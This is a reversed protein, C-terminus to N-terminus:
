SRIDQNPGPNTQGPLIRGEKIDKKVKTMSNKLARRIYEIVAYTTKIHKPNINKFMSDDEGLVQLFRPITDTVSKPMQNKLAWTEIYSYSKSKIM